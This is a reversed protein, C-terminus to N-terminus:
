DRGDEYIILARDFVGDKQYSINFIFRTNGSQNGYALWRNIASQLSEYGFEQIIKCQQM